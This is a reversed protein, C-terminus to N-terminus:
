EIRRWNKSDLWRDKKEKKAGKTNVQAREGTTSFGCSKEEKEKCM